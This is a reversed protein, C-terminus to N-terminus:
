VSLVTTVFMLLSRHGMEWLHFPELLELHMNWTDQPLFQKWRRQLPCWGLMLAYRQWERSVPLGSFQCNVGKGFDRMETM